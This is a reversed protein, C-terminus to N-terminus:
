RHALQAIESASAIESLVARSVSGRREVDFGIAALDSRWAVVAGCYGESHSLSGVITSPWEPANTSLRPLGAPAHGLLELARRACHRGAAFEVARRDTARSVAEVENPWLPFPQSLDTLEAGWVGPPFLEIVSPRMPVAASKAA